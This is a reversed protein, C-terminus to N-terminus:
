RVHRKYSTIQRHIFSTIQRHLLVGRVDVCQNRGQVSLNRAIRLQRRRLGHLSKVGAAVGIPESGRAEYFTFLNSAWFYAWATFPTSFLFTHQVHFPHADNHWWINSNNNCVSLSYFPTHIDLPPLSAKSLKSDNNDIPEQTPSPISTSSSNIGDHSMLKFWHLQWAALWLYPRSDLKFSGWGLCLEGKIALM